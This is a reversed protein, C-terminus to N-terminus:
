GHLTLNIFAISLVRTDENEGINKPKAANSTVLTIISRAM